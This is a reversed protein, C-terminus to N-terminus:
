SIVCRCGMAACAAPPQETSEDGGDPNTDALSHDSSVVAVASNGDGNSTEADAADAHIPSDSKTPTPELSKPKEAAIPNYSSETPRSELHPVDEDPTAVSGNQVEDAARDPGAPNSTKSSENEQTSGNIATIWGELDEDNMAAFSSFSGSSEYVDFRFNRRGPKPPIVVAHDVDEVEHTEETESLRGTFSGRRHLKQSFLRRSVPDFEYMSQGWDDMITNKSIKFELVGRMVKPPEVTNDDLLASYVKELGARLDESSAGNEAEEIEARSFSSKSVQKEMLLRPNPSEQVTKCVDVLIGLVEDEVDRQFFRVFEEKTVLSDGDEDLTSFLKMLLFLNGHVQNGTKRAKHTATVTGILESVSVSGDKNLDFCEDFARGPDAKIQDATWSHVVMTSGRRGKGSLLSGKQKESNM